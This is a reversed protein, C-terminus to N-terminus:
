STLAIAALAEYSMISSFQNQSVFLKHSPFCFFLRACANLSKICTSANCRDTEKPKHIQTQTFHQVKKFWTSLRCTQNKCNVKQQRSVTTTTKVTYAFSFHQKKIIYKYKSKMEM